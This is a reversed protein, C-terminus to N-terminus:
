CGGAFPKGPGWMNWQASRAWNESAVAWDHFLLNGAGVDAARALGVYVMVISLNYDAGDSGRWVPAALTRSDEAKTADYQLAVIRGPTLFINRLAAQAWDSGCAGPDPADMQLMRVTKGSTCTFSEGDIVTQVTCPEGPPLNSQVSRLAALMDIRGAGAWGPAGGDPLATATSKIIATIAQPTLGPKLSLMLAALGSVQPASFSTGDAIGYPEGSLCTIFRGCRASPVTGVISEGVAVVDVEPGYSSFIARKTPSKAAAGVALADAYRAPYAVPPAGGNGAAAVVLAANDRFATAVADQMVAADELGGLSVNIIKAGNRAAYVIGQAVAVSDGSGFCDLVKVPMIKVNRAVGVMGTGNAAAAIVGAVFTGHGIEDRILGNTVNPCGPSSDTVFACGNIDDVCGNADDDVGNNAIENPNFWINAQLDPHLVDVGTDIVAVLVSPKSKEIDWAPQANVASLYSLQKSFHPEAPTDTTRMPVVPEAYRVGAISRLGAAFVTADKGRPARVQVARLDDLRRVVAAGRVTIAAEFADRSAGDELGVVLLPPQQADQAHHLHPILALAATLALLGATLWIRDVGRSTNMGSLGKRRMRLLTYYCLKDLSPLNLLPPTKM